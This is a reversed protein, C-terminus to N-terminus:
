FQWINPVNEPLGLAPSRLNRWRAARLSGTEAATKSPLRCAFSGPPRPDLADLSTMAWKGEPLKVYSNFIAM